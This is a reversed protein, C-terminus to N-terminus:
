SYLANAQMNQPSAYFVGIYKIIECVGLTVKKQFQQFKVCESLNKVCFLVLNSINICKCQNIILSFLRSRCTKLIYIKQDLISTTYFKQCLEPRVLYIKWNGFYSVYKGFKCFKHNLFYFHYPSIMIEFIARM